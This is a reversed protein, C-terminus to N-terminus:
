LILIKEKQLRLKEAVKESGAQVLVIKKNSKEGKLIRVKADFLNRLQKLLEKNAKGNRAPSCVKVRLLDDTGCPELEFRSSNAAVKLRLIVGKEIESM